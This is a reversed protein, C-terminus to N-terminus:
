RVLQFSERDVVEEGFVQSRVVVVYTGIPQAKEKYTGDWGLNSDTSIYIQQGYRNYIAFDILSRNASVGIVLPAYTDNVGDGNPSFATPLGVQYEGIVNVWVSDTNVCGNADVVTVVYLTTDSPQVTINQQNPDGIIGVPPMWMYSIGGGPDATLTSTENLVIDITTPDAAAEVDPLPNVIVEVAAVNSCGNADTGVVTYTTTSTPSAIVTAATDVNLGDTPSWVYSVAGNATLEVEDGICIEVSSVDTTVTPLDYVTVIMSDEAPCGNVTQTVLNYQTTVAPSATPTASAPASLSGAPTWSWLAGGSGDLVVSEGPCIFKDEGADAAADDDVTVTVVRIASGCFDSTGIATYTVTTDTFVNVVTGTDLDLGANPTWTWDYSDAGILELRVSDGFCVATEGEVSIDVGDALVGVTTTADLAEELDDEDLIYAFAFCQCVGTDLLPIKYAISIAEDDTNVGSGSYPGTANWVDYPDGTNFSGFSVRAMTDRAGMGIFCGFTLGEATVLAETDGLPPNSVITNTTTFDGSWPQDNDPDVNRKWYFDTIPVSGTNCFTYQTVFYLKDEPMLTTQRIDVEVGGPGTATGDWVVTRAAGADTYSTIAGPIEFESCPQDTNTLPDLTGDGFNIAWGEVPSGPVFYDGCYQPFGVGWGDEDSDAVFGLGGPETPNYLGVPGMTAGPPNNSGYVGCRSVGVEHYTGQMFADTGVIQAQVKPSYGLAGLLATIAFLGQYNLYKM